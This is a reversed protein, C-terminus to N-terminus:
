KVFNWLEFFQGRVQPQNVVIDEELFLSAICLILPFTATIFFVTNLSVYELLIGGSYATLIIGVAKLGFFTSM